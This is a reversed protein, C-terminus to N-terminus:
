FAKREAQVALKHGMMKSVKFWRREKIVSRKRICNRGTWSDGPNCLWSHLSLQLSFDSVVGNGELVPKVEEGDEEKRLQNGDNKERFGPLSTKYTFTGHLNPM